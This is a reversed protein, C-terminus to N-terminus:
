RAVVFRAYAAGGSASVRVAYVGPALASADFVIAHEGAGKAGSAITAMERGRADLVTVTVEPSPRALSVYATARGRAPSPGVRVSVGSAEPTEPPGAESVVPVYARLDYTLIEGVDRRGGLNVNLYPILASGGVWAPVGSAFYASDVPDSPHMEAVPEWVSGVDDRLLYAHAAGSAFVGGAASASATVLALTAGEVEWTEIAAGFFGGEPPPLLTQVLAWVGDAGREFAFVRGAGGYSYLAGALVVPGRPGQAIAVDFGFASGDAANPPIPSAITEPAGWTGDAQEEFVYVAGDRFDDEPMSGPRFASPDAVVAISGSLAVHRGFRTANPDPSTLQESRVWTGGADRSVVYAGWNANGNLPGDGAIFRPRGEACASVSRGFQDSLDDGRLTAVHRWLGLPDPEFLHVAGASPISPDGPARENHAAVALAPPGGGPGSTAPIAALDHGFRGNGNYEPPFLKQRETARGTTPDLSFVYASGAGSGLDDDNGSGAFVVHETAGPVQDLSLAAVAQGLRRFETTDAVTFRYGETLVPVFPAGMEGSAEPTSAHQAAAASCGAALFLAALAPFRMSLSPLPLM